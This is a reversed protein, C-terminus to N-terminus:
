MSGTSTRRIAAVAIVARQSFGRPRPEAMRSRAGVWQRPHPWQAETSSNGIGCEPLATTEFRLARGRGSRTAALPRQILARLPPRSPALHRRLLHPHDGNSRPRHSLACMRSIAPQQRRPAPFDWSGRQRPVVGHQAALSGLGPADGRLSSQTPQFRHSVAHGVSKTLM